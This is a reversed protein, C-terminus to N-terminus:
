KFFFDPRQMIRRHRQVKRRLSIRDMFRDEAPLSQALRGTVALFLSLFFGPLARRPDESGAALYLVAKDRLPDMIIRLLKRLPPILFACLAPESGHILRGAARCVASSEADPM